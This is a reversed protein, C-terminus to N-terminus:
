TLGLKRANVEKLAEGVQGSQGKQCILLADGTDVVVLNDVGVLAIIKNPDDVKVFNDKGNLDVIYESTKYLGKEKLYKDLSEFTGIDIWKFPLEVVLAEGAAYVHETVDEIPGPPMKLYETKVDGGNVINMLPEYWEPKYKQLMALMNRPTMCTHNSHILANGKKILEDTEEKSSRWVFGDVKYVSIENEPTVRAGKILFDVGMVSYTPKFGGTIYKTEKRALSDCVMVMKIFDEAPERLDDAQIIMFPEDPLGKKYLFAAILGTAPGQNRMEPELIYNSVPIEPVQKQALIAQDGNTSVYIEEPKFKTRLSEYNIQFLSKGGILALFPKPQHKRSVPWLKTGFGGCIIVPIM